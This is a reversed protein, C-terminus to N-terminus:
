EPLLSPRPAPVSALAHRLQNTVPCIGPQLAPPLAFAILVFIGARCPCFLGRLVAIIGACHWHCPCCCSAPLSLLLIRAFRLHLAPLRKRPVPRVEFALEAVVGARCWCNPCSPAPLSALTIRALVGACRWYFAMAAKALGDFALIVTPQSRTCCCPWPRCRQACCHCRVSLPGRSRWSQSSALKHHQCCRPHALLSLALAVLAFVGACRPPRHLHLMSFLLPTISAIIGARTAVAKHRSLHWNAISAAVCLCHPCRHWRLSSLLAWVVLFIIGACCRCCCCCCCLTPSSALAICGLVCACLQCLCWRQMRWVM